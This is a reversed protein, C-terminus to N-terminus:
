IGYRFEVLMWGSVWFGLACWLVGAAVLTVVGPVRRPREAIAEVARIVFPLLWLLVPLLLLRPRAHMIGDSGLVTGAIATGTLWVQWPVWGRLLPWLSAFGLVVVAIILWSSLVYGVQNPDSADATTLHEGLWRLTAAGWDFASNWGRRQAAFYGGIDTVQRNAWSLYAVLGLSGIVPAAVAAVPFRDRNRTWRWVEVVAAVSLVLILATVTLRTLGAVLTLVGAAIFRRRVLMILAWVVCASFLGESYPMWYVFSMPAGFALVVGAVAVARPARDRGIEIALRGVGCAFALAALASVVLAGLFIADQVGFVALPAAVIRVLVPHGPFFAVSQWEVREAPDPSVSFGFYGFEAIKTMWGADWKILIDRLGLDPAGWTALIRAQLLGLVAATVM